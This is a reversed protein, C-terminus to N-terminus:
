NRISAAGAGRIMAMAVVRHTRVPNATGRVHGAVCARVPELCYFMARLM